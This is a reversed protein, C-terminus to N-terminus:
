RRRFLGGLVGRRVGCSGNVCSSAESAPVQEPSDPKEIAIWEVPELPAPNGIDVIPQEIVPEIAPIATSQQAVSAVTLVGLLLWAFNSHTM